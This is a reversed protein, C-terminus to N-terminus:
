LAIAKLYLNEYKLTRWFREIVINDISKGKANMSIKIGNKKLKEIHEKLTYQSGQDSNFIEPKGYKEIAEELISTTLYSGM